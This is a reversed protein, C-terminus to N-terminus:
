APVERDEMGASVLTNGSIELGTQVRGTWSRCLLPWLTLVLLYRSCSNGSGVRSVSSLRRSEQGPPKVRKRARWVGDSAVAAGEGPKRILLHRQQSRMTPLSAMLVQKLRRGMHTEPVWGGPVGVQQSVGIPGKPLLAKWIPHSAWWSSRSPPSSPLLLLLLTTQGPLSLQRFYLRIHRERCTCILADTLCGQTFM